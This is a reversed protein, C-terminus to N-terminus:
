GNIPEKAHGNVRQFEQEIANDIQTIDIAMDQKPERQGLYQKGLWIAMAPNGQQMLKFQARRISCEFDARGRKILAAFRRELTDKSVELAVAIEETTCGIKLFPRILTENVAKRPRAMACVFLPRCRVHTM